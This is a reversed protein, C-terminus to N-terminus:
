SKKELIAVRRYLEILKRQMVTMEAKLHHYDDTSINSAPTPQPPPPAETTAEPQIVAEAITLQKKLRELLENVSGSIGEQVQIGVHQLAELYNPPCHGTFLHTAGRMVLLQLCADSLAGDDGHGPGEIPEVNDTETDVILFFANRGLRFAVQDDLTDGMATVVFKM